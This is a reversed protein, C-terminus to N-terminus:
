MTDIHQTGLIDAALHDTESAKDVGCSPSGSHTAGAGEDHENKPRKTIAERRYMFVGLCLQFNKM